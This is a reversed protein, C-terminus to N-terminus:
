ITQGILHYAQTFYLNSKMACEVEYKNLLVGYTYNVREVTGQHKPTYPKGNIITYGFMEQLYKICGNVFETGNDSQLIAPPGYGFREFVTILAECVYQEEKQQLAFLWLFKSFCDIVALVYKFGNHPKNSYDKLDIQIREMPYNYVIPKIEPKNTFRSFENCIECSKLYEALLTRRVGSNFV